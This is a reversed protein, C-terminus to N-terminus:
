LRSVKPALGRRESLGYVPPVLLAGLEGRQLSPPRCHGPVGCPEGLVRRGWPSSETIWLSFPEGSCSSRMTRSPSSLAPLVVSSFRRADSSTLVMVGVWTPAAPTGRAAPPHCTRGEGQTISLNTVRHLAEVYLADVRVAELQIDPIDPPLAGDARVPLLIQAACVQQHTPLGRLGGYGQTHLATGGRLARYGLLPTCGGCFAPPQAAPHPPAASQGKQGWPLNIDNVACILLTKLLCPLYSPDPQHPPQPARPSVGM